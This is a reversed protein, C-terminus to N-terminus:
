DKSHNSEPEPAIERILSASATSPLYDLARQGRSDRHNRDAGHTVLLHVLELNAAAAARILATDGDNTALNVNAGLGILFKAVDSSGTRVAYRLASSGTVDVADLDARAAVLLKVIPLKGKEAAIILPTAGDPNRVNVRTHESILYSLTQENGSEVADVIPFKGSRNCASDLSARNRIIMRLLRPSGSAALFNALCQDRFTFFVMGLVFLSVLGILKWGRIRRKGSTGMDNMLIQIAKVCIAESSDKRTSLIWSTM